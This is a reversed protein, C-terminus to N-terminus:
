LNKFDQVINSYKSLHICFHKKKVNHLDGTDQCATHVDGMQRAQLMNFYLYLQNICPRVLLLGLCLYDAILFFFILSFNSTTEFAISGM